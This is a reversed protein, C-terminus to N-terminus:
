LATITEILAKLLIVGGGVVAVVAVVISDVLLKGGDNLSPDESGQLIDAEPLGTKQPPQM